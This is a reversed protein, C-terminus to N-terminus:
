GCLGREAMHVLVRTYLHAHELLPHAGPPLHRKQIYSAQPTLTVNKRGRGGLCGLCAM